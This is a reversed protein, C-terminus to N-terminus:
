NVVVDAGSRPKLRWIGPSAAVLLGTGDIVAGPVYPAPTFGADRDLLVELPGSGDTVTLRFDGAVTATDSITANTVVVLAADLRGADATRAVATRVGVPAPVAAVALAFLAVDTLEPQSDRIGLTGALRVRDGALVPRPQVRTARIAGSTDALHITSDGFAALANLAVGEVFVRTRPPLLRAQRVSVRPASVTVAVAVSDGPDLDITSDAIRAVTLSDAVTATDVLVDYRGARLPAIRFGGATDSVASGIATGSGRVAIRVRVGAVPADPPGPERDGDADFYVLGGVVGSAEFALVRDQGANNCAALALALTFVTRHNREM